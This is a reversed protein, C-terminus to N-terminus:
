EGVANKNSRRNSTVLGVSLFILFPIANILVGIDFEAGRVDFWHIITFLAWFVTMAWHFFLSQEYHWAFWLTILGAFVLLSSFEQFGHVVDLNGNAIALLTGKTSKPLLRFSLVVAGVALFISGFIVYVAKALMTAWM